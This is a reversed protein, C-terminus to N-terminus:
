PKLIERLTLEVQLKTSVVELLKEKNVVAYEKVAAYKDVLNAKRIECGDRQLQLDNLKCYLLLVAHLDFFADNRVFGEVMENLQDELGLIAIAEELRPYKYWFDEGKVDWDYGRKIGCVRTAKSMTCYLRRPGIPFPIKRHELFMLVFGINHAVLVDTERLAQKVKKKKICDRGIFEAIELVRLTNGEQVAKAYATQWVIDEPKLGTTEIDLFLLNM